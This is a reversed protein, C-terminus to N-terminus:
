GCHKCIACYATYVKGEHIATGSVAFTEGCGCYASTNQIIVGYPRVRTVGKLTFPFQSRLDEMIARSADSKTRAINKCIKSM